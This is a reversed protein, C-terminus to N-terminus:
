VVPKLPVTPIDTLTAFPGYEAITLAALRNRLRTIELNLQEIYKEQEIIKHVLQGQTICVTSDSPGDIGKNTM